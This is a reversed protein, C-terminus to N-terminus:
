SPIFVVLNSDHSNLMTTVSSRWSYNNMAYRAAARAATRQIKELASIDKQLYPAWIYIYIYNDLM